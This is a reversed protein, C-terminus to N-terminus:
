IASYPLLTRNSEKKLFFLFVSINKFTLVKLSSMCQIYLEVIRFYVRNRIEM